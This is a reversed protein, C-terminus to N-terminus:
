PWSTHPEHCLRFDFGIHEILETHDVISDPKILRTLKKELHPEVPQKSCPGLVESATAAVVFL